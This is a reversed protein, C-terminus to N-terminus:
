EENEVEKLKDVDGNLAEKAIDSIKIAWEGCFREGLYPGMMRISGRLAKEYRMLKAQQQEILKQTEHQTDESWNAAKIRAELEEIDECLEIITEDSWPGDEYENKIQGLWEERDEKTTKM